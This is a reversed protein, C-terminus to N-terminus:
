GTGLAAFPLAPPHPTILTACVGDLRGGGLRAEGIHQSVDDTDLLHRDVAVEEVVEAGVRHHHGVEARPGPLPGVQRGHRHLIDVPVRRDSAQGPREVSLRLARGRRRDRRRGLHRCWDARWLVDEASRQLDQAYESVKKEDFDDESSAVVPDGGARSQDVVVQPRDEEAARAEEAQAGKRDQRLPHEDPAPLGLPDADPAEAVNAKPDDLGQDPRVRQDQEDPRRDVHEVQAREARLDAPVHHDKGRVYGYAGVQERDAGARDNALVREEVAISGAGAHDLGAQDAESPVSEDALRRHEVDLGREAVSRLEAVGGRQVGALGDRVALTPVPGRRQLPGLHIVPRDARRVAAGRSPDAVGDELQM